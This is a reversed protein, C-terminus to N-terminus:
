REALPVFSATRPASTTRARGFSRATPASSSSTRPGVRRARSSSCRRSCPRLCAWSTTPSPRSGTSTPSCRRPQRWKRKSRTPSPSVARPRRSGRGAPARRGQHHPQAPRRGHLRSPRLRHRGRQARPARPHRRRSGRAHSLAAPDRAGGRERRRAEPRAVRRHRRRHLLLPRLGHRRHRADHVDLRQVRARRVARAVHADRPGVFGAAAASAAADPFARRGLGCRERRRHPHRLARLPVLLAAHQRALRHASRRHRACAGRSQDREPEVCGLASVGAECSTWRIRRRRAPSRSSQSCSDPLGRLRSSNRVTRRWSPSRRCVSTCSCIPSRRSSARRPWRSSTTAAITSTTAPGASPASRRTAPSSAPSRSRSRPKPPHLTDTM